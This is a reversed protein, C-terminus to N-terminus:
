ILAEWESRNDRFFHIQVVSDLVEYYVSTQRTIVGKRFNPFQTSSPSSKPFQGISDIKKEAKELFKLAAEVGYEVEIFNLLNAYQTKSIPSWNVPLSM